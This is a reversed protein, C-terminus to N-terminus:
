DDFFFFFFFSSPIHHRVRFNPLYTEPDLLALRGICEAGVIRNDEQESVTLLTQWLKPAAPPLETEAVEPHQVLEKLSHLLLYSQANSSDFGDLIVPLYAKVNGAAANGLSTAAALRVKDSKSTFNQIFVEPTLQRCSSGMRLGIEGLIALALCKRQIDQASRLESLFDDVNVGLNPGGHVVLTGIARGVVSPEGNVGVGQLLRSMLEAGAGQEGIVKVLQLLTALVTGVISVRVVSCIAKILEENVLKKANGPIIETLILLATALLPFDEVNILPLIDSEVQKVTTQSFQARTVPNVALSRLTELSSVRLTRDAKRLQAGLEPAVSNVWGETVDETREANAAVGDIARVASTRTVENRLRDNLVSLGRLRRDQSLLQSGKEGSSRAIIFGFVRIAYQRVELYVHGDGIRDITVDYLKELQLSIDQANASVRPVTLANVIQEVTTLAERSVKYNKDNVAGLVGPVLAILFPILADSTNTEAIAAILRLTEIQLTGVSVNAMGIPMTTPANSSSKLADAIPDEIQQLYDALGGHHVLALAQLLVIMEQQLPMAVQKWKKVLNQILSPTLRALEALSASQPSSPAGSTVAPSSTRLNPDLDAMSADSNQRRRKRSNNNLGGLFSDENPGTSPVVASGEEGTRRVLVILTSLIEIGVIDERENKIRSILIPAIQQYLVSDDLAYGRNCTSIIAYLVKAACRRVKWSIDDVDSYGGEEEFDAFEDDEDPEETAGDDSGEEDDQTGGMEEDEGADAVNPDYKLFRLAGKVSDQLYPVMQQSCYNVLAELTMLARERLQDTESETEDSVDSRADNEEQLEQESIASLVLPVLTQIHPGFKNPAGRALSGITAILNRRHATTLHPSHFREVLQSVFANLRDDPYHLVLVSIAAHARKTAVAGATDNDIVSMVAKELAALEEEKLLPGYGVVVAILVDIADSAFGKSPDKELMGKVISGRRSSRSPTPGALRPILVKSITSYAAVVKQESPEDSQPHPMSQVVIRLASNALSTDNVGITQPGSLTTLKDLLPALSDASM